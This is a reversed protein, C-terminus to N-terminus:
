VGCVSSLFTRNWKDDNANNDGNIPPGVDGKSEWVFAVYMYWSGHQLQM